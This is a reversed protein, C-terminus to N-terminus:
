EYDILCTFNSLNINPVEHSGFKDHLCQNADNTRFKQRLTACTGGRSVDGAIFLSSFRINECALSLLNQMLRAHCPVLHLSSLNM